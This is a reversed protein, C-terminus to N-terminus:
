TSAESSTKEEKPKRKTITDVVYKRFGRYPVKFIRVPWAAIDLVMVAYKQGGELSNIHDKVVQREEKHNKGFYMFYRFRKRASTDPGGFLPPGASAKVAKPKKAKKEPKDGDPKKAKAKLKDGFGGFKSEKPKAEKEPKAEKAKKAKDKFKGGFGGFKSEKPKVEEPKTEVPVEAPEDAAAEM